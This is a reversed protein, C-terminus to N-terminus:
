YEIDGGALGLEAILIDRLTQVMRVAREPAYYAENYVLGLELRGRFTWVFCYTQRTLTEVGISVDQVDLVTGGHAHQPFVLEEADGVSSIDVESQPPDPPPPNQQLVRLVQVAYQRRCQLFEATIGTRYAREYQQATVLWPQSAEARAMYGGTYLAAASGATCYPRPLHPRLSFRMTSAYHKHRHDPAAELRTLAACSAHVASVLSISRARCADLVAATDIKNLSLRASRTGAPAAATHTGGTLAVGVAGKTYGLTKMCNRTADLIDPTAELPLGLVEEISPTLRRVEEGWPLTRDEGTAARCLNDLFANVLQLAGYGDTRWHAFHILVRGEGPLLHATTYRTPKLAATIDDATAGCDHVVLTEKAWSTVSDEPVVLYSLEDGDATCAISPHDFRLSRWAGLCKSELESPALAKNLTFQAGATVSWHERGMQHARDGIFKIFKENDGLPRRWLGPKVEEWPM